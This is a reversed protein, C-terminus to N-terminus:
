EDYKMDVDEKLAAREVTHLKPAVPVTLSKECVNSKADKYKRIPQARFVM